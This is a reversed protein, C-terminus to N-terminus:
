NRSRSSTAKNPRVRLETKVQNKKDDALNAKITVAKTRSVTRSAQVKIVKEREGKRFMVERPVQITRADSSTLMVKMNVPPPRDLILRLEFIEGALLDALDVKVQELIIGKVVLSTTQSSQGTNATIDVTRNYPIMVTNIAFTQSGTQGSGGTVVVSAPVTASSHSSNLSVTVNQGTPVQSMYITGQASSGGDVSIPNITLGTVLPVVAEVTFNRTDTHNTTLPGAIGNNQRVEVRVQWNGAISPTLSATNPSSPNSSLPQFGGGNRQYSWEFQLPEAGHNANVSVMVQEGTKPNSPSITIASVQLPRILKGNGPHICCQELDDFIDDAKDDADAEMQMQDHVQDWSGTEIMSQLDTESLHDWWMKAFADRSGVQRCQEFHALEHLMWKFEGESDLDGQRKDDVFSSNNYYIKDCDATANNPPQRNSYGFQVQSLNAAPYHPDLIDRYLAPLNHLTVGLGMQTLYADYMVFKAQCSAQEAQCSTVEANDNLCSQDLPNCLKPSGCNMNCAPVVGFQAQSTLPIGVALVVAFILILSIRM